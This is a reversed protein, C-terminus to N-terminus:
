PSPEAARGPDAPDAAPRAQTTLQAYLRERQTRLDDVQGRLDAAQARTAAHTAREAALASHQEAAQARAQDLDTRLREAQADAVERAREAAAIADRLAAREAAAVRAAARDEAATARQEAAVADRELDTNRELLGDRLETLLRLQDTALTIQERLAPAHRAELDRLRALREDVAAKAEAACPKDPCYEPPRGTTRPRAFSAGRHRCTRQESGADPDHRDGYCEGEKGSVRFTELKRFLSRRPEMILIISGTGISIIKSLAPGSPPRCGSM